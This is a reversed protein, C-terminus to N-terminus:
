AAARRAALELVAGERLGGRGVRLSIGLRDQLAALVVAGAALTSTRGPDLDYMAALRDAPTDALLALARELEDRGLTPGVLTRLSRASGGVALGLKPPPPAFGELLRAVEDSARRMADAGPPDTEFCRSALRRSGVDISRTWAAGGGPTGVAM